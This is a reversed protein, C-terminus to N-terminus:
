NILNSFDIPILEMYALSSNALSVTNCCHAQCHEFKLSNRFFHRPRWYRYILLFFAGDWHECAISTRNNGQLHKNSSKMITM